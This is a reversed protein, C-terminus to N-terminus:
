MVVEQVPDLARPTSIRGEIATAAAVAPSVLYIQARDSGMRGPYNRSSTSVVTDHSGAVGGHLGACPGCGPPMVVAGADILLEILGEQALQRQVDRSAPYCLM